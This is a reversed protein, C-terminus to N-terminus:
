RCVLIGWIFGVTKSRVNTTRTQKTACMAIGVVMIANATVELDSEDFTARVVKTRHKHLNVLLLQM